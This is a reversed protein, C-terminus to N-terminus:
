IGERLFPPQSTFKRETFHSLSEREEASTLLEEIGM